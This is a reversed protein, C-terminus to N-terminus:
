DSTSPTNGLPFNIVVCTACMKAKRDPISSPPRPPFDICMRWVRLEFWTLCYFPIPFNSMSLRDIHFINTHIYGSIEFMTEVVQATERHLQTSNFNPASPELLTLSLHLSTPSTLPCHSHPTPLSCSVPLRHHAVGPRALHVFYTLSLLVIEMWM